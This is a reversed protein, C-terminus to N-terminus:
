GQSGSTLIICAEPTGRAVTKATDSDKRRTLNEKPPLSHSRNLRTLRGTRSHDNSATLGHAYAVIPVSALPPSLIIQSRNSSVERTCM